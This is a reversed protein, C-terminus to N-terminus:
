VLEGGCDCGGCRDCYPNRCEVCTMMNELKHRTGCECCASRQRWITNFVDIGELSADVLKTYHRDPDFEPHRQLWLRAIAASFHDLLQGQQHHTELERQVRGM